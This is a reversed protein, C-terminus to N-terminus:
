VRQKAIRKSPIIFTKREQNEEYMMSIGSNTIDKCYLILEQFFPEAEGKKYLSNSNDRISPPPTTIRLFDLSKFNVMIFELANRSISLIYFFINKLSKFQKINIASDSTSDVNMVSRFALIRLVELNPTCAKMLRAIDIKQNRDWSRVELVKLNRFNSIFKYSGGFEEMDVGEQYFILTTIQNCYILNLRVLLTRDDLNFFGFMSRFCIESINPLNIQERVLLELYERASHNMSLTLKVLNPCATVVKVFYELHNPGRIYDKDIIKADELLEIRYITEALRDSNSTDSVLKPMESEYLRIHLGDKLYISSIRSNWLSCVLRYHFFNDQTLFYKFIMIMIEEPFLRSTM